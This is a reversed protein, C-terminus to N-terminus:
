PTVELAATGSSNTVKFGSCSIEAQDCEVKVNGDTHLTINGADLEIKVKANDDFLSLPVAKMTNQQYHLFLENATAQSLGGAHELRNKLGLLLM